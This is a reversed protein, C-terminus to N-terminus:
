LAGGRAVRGGGGEDGGAGGRVRASTSSGTVVPGDITLSGRGGGPGLVGLLGARARSSLLAEGQRSRVRRRGQGGGNGGNRGSSSSVTSRGVQQHHHQHQRQKEDQASKRRHHPQEQGGKDKAAEAELPCSRPSISTNGASSLLCNEHDAQEDAPSAADAATYRAGPSPGGGGSSQEKVSPRSEPGMKSPIDVVRSRLPMSNSNISPSKGQLSFDYRAKSKSSQRTDDLKGRLREVQPLLRVSDPFLAPAEHFDCATPWIGM